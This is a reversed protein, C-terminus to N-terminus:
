GSEKVIAQASLMTTGRDRIQLAAIIISARKKTGGDIFDVTLDFSSPQLERIGEFQEEHAIVGGSYGGGRSELQTDGLRRIALKLTDGMPCADLRFAGEVLLLMGRAGLELEASGSIALAAGDALPTVIQAHTRV